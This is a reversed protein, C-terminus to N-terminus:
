ASKSKQLINMNKKIIKHVDPLYSSYTLVLPVREEKKEKHKKRLAEERSTQDVRKLQNNIWKNKYGRSKLQKVLCTRQKMYKNNDSCIRKIRIGLGHPIAQKTFKPHDSTKHLYIHKDSEKSYLDTEIRGGNLIVLTDLFEIQQLSYRLKININPHINNAYETFEQLKEIGHTWIGFGDDIFRM